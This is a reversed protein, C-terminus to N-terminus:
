SFNEEPIRGDVSLDGLHNREGNPKRVLIKHANRKEGMCAVHGTWSMERSKIIRIIDLSTLGVFKSAGSYTNKEM